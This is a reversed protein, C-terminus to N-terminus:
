IPVFSIVPLSCAQNYSALRQSAWAISWITSWLWRTANQNLRVACAYEFSGADYEFVTQLRHRIVM